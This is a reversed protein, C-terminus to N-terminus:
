ARKHEICHTRARTIRPDMLGERRFRTMAERYEDYTMLRTVQDWTCVCVGDNAPCTRHFQAEASAPYEHPAGQCACLALVALAALWGRM